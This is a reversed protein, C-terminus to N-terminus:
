VIDKRRNVSADDDKDQDREYTEAFVIPVTEAVLVEPHDATAAPLKLYITKKFELACFGCRQM